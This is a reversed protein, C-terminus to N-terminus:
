AVRDWGLGVQMTRGFVMISGDYRSGIPQVEEKSLPKEPLAEAADYYMWQRIPSCTGLVACTAGYSVMLSHTGLSLCALAPCPLGWLVPCSVVLCPLRCPPMLCPIRSVVVHRMVGYLNM